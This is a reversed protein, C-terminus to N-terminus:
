KSSLFYKLIAKNSFEGVTAIRIYTAYPGEAFKSALSYFELVVGLSGIAKRGSLFRVRYIRIKVQWYKQPKRFAEEIAPDEWNNLDINATFLRALRKGLKPNIYRNRVESRIFVEQFIKNGIM